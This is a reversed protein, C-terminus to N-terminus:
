LESSHTNYHSQLTGKTQRRDPHAISSSLTLTLVFKKILITDEQLIKTIKHLKETIPLSSNEATFRTITRIFTLLKLCLENNETKELYCLQVFYTLHSISVM